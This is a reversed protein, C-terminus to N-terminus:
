LKHFNGLLLNIFSPVRVKATVELNLLLCRVLEYDEIFHWEKRNSLRSWATFVIASRTSLAM